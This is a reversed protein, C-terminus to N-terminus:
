RWLLEAVVPYHDSPWPGEPKWADVSAGAVEVDGSVFIYDIHLSRGGKLAGFDHFTPVDLARPDAHAVVDILASSLLRVAEEGPDANFDGCVVCPDGDKPARDLLLRAGRTRAEISEHDLHTNLVHFGRREPLALFDAQTCIRPLTNGWSASKSGAAEPTESLWWTCTRACYLQDCRFLIPCAEGSAEGDDRGAFVGAYPEGLLGLLEDYQHRLAEQLCVVLPAHRRIQEACAEKRFQWSNAGDEASDFRINFSMVTVRLSGKEAM